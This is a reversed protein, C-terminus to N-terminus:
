LKLTLGIGARWATDYTESLLLPGNRDEIRLDRAFSLGLSAFFSLKPSAEFRAFTVFAFATEEGVGGPAAGQGDLRFRLREYRGGASLSLRRSAQWELFLGPAQTAGLGSGTKLTLNPRIKWDVLVVPFISPSDEIQTIVGLGPGISLRSNVKYIAGAFGGGSLGDELPAGKEVSSRLSLGGLM